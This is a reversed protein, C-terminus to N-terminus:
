LLTARKRGRKDFHRPFLSALAERAIAEAESRSRAGGVMLRLWLGEQMSYMVAGLLKPSFGYAGEKKLEACVAEIASLYDEDHSWCLERFDARNSAETWFAFWAAIIRENCVADDLDCLVLALIRDAPAPGASGLATKWHASYSASLHELTALFLKDKSEFHFNVIGRSLGASDAVDALTAGAYGKAAITDLTAQILQERRLSKSERRRERPRERRETRPNAAM